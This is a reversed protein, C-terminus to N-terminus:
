VAQQVLLFINGDPDSFHTEIANGWGARKPEYLVRAGHLKLHECEAQIDDTDLVIHTSKGVRSSEDPLSAKLLMFATQGSRPKLTLWRNQSSKPDTIDATVEFGFADRYFKLARDCDSVVISVSRIHTIM